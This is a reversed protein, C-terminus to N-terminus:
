LELAHGQELPPLIVNMPCLPADHSMLCADSSAMYEMNQELLSNWRKKKKKVKETAGYL